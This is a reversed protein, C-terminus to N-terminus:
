GSASIACCSRSRGTRMDQSITWQRQLGTSPSSSTKGRVVVHLDTAQNRSAAGDGRLIAAADLKIFIQKPSIADALGCCSPLFISAAM